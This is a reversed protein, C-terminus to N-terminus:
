RQVFLEREYDYKGGDCPIDIDGLSVMQEVMCLADKENEANVEVVRSYTEVVKIRFKIKREDSEQIDIVGSPERKGVVFYRKCDGLVCKQYANLSNIDVKNGRFDTLEYRDIYNGNGFLTYIVRFRSIDSLVEDPLECVRRFYEVDDIRFIVKRM